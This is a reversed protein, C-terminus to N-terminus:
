VEQRKTAPAPAPAPTTTTTTTTINHCYQHHPKPKNHAIIGEKRRTNRSFSETKTSNKVTLV